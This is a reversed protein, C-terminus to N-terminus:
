VLSDAYNGTQLDLFGLPLYLFPEDFRMIVDYPETSRWVGPKPAVAKGCGITWPHNLSVTLRIAEQATVTNIDAVKVYHGAGFLRRACEAKRQLRQLALAARDRQVDGVTPWATVKRGGFVARVSPDLRPHSSMLGRYAAVVEAADGVVQAAVM